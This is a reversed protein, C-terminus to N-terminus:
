SARGRTELEVVRHELWSMRERLQGEMRASAALCARLESVERLLSEEDGGIEDLFSKLSRM